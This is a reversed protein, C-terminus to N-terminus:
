DSEKTFRILSMEEEQISYYENVTMDDLEAPTYSGDIRKQVYTEIFDTAEDHTDFMMVEPEALAAIAFEVKYM